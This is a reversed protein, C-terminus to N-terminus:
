TARRGPTCRAVDSYGMLERVEVRWTKLERLWEEWAGRNGQADPGALTELGALLDDSQCSKPPLPLPAGHWHPRPHLISAPSPAHRAALVASLALALLLALVLTRLQAM